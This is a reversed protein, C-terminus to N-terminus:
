RVKYPNEKTGDGSVYIIDNTLYIIPRIYATSSASTLKISGSVRYVQHTNKSYATALWWNLNYQALYNYNSCSEATTTTCNPDLSANLFDYAPLLSIYQNELITSSEINGSKDTEKSDRKGIPLNHNAVLLKNEESILTTGEYLTALYDKVRSVNYNNIGLKADKEINYRNDWSINDLKETLILVTYNDKIKVIRYTKGSFQLYNNVNDGRYVLNDNVKYLGNETETIDVNNNIYDVFKLTEYKGECNLIPNYRYNGNINTVIVEGDCSAEDDKILENISKMKEASVLTKETITISENTNQPLKEQRDNLYEITAKKMINEIEEYSTKYFLKNYLLAGGFIIVCILILFGGILILTKKNAKELLEKM